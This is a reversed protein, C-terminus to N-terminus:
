HPTRETRIFLILNVGLIVIGVEEGHLQVDSLYGRFGELRIKIPVEEGPAVEVQEGRCTLHLLVVPISRRVAVEQVAIGEETKVQRGIRTITNAEMQYLLAVQADLHMETIRQRGSHLDNGVGLEFIHQFDVLAPINHVKDM